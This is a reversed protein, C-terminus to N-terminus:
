GFMRRRELEALEERLRMNEEVRAELLQQKIHADELAINLDQRLQCIKDDQERKIKELALM